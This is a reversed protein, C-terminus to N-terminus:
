HLLNPRKKRIGGRRGKRSEVFNKGRGENKKGEKRRGKHCAQRFLKGKSRGEKKELSKQNRTKKESNRKIASMRRKAGGREENSASGVLL